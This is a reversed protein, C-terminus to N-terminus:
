PFDAEWAILPSEFCSKGQANVILDYFDQGSLDSVQSLERSNDTSNHYRLSTHLDDLGTDNEPNNMILEMEVVSEFDPCFIYEGKNPDISISGEMLYVVLFGLHDYFLTIHYGWGGGKEVPGSRPYVMIKSPVGYTILINKMSYTEAAHEFADYYASGRFEEPIYLRVSIFDITWRDLSIFKESLNTVHDLNIAESFSYDGDDTFFTTNKLRGIPLLINRLDQLNSQGPYIGWWCPLSCGNNGLILNLIYELQEEKPLEPIAPAEITWITPTMSPIPSPTDSSIPNFNGKYDAQFMTATIEPDDPAGVPSPQETCGIFGVFNFAGIVVLGFTTIKRIKRM